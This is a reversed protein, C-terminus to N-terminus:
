DEKSWGYELLRQVVVEWDVEVNAHNITTGDFWVEYTGDFAEQVDAILEPLKEEDM